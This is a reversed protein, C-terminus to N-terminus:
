AGEGSLLRHVLLPRVQDLVGALWAPDALDIRDAGEQLEAPLKRKLDALEGPLRALAEPDARLEAIYQVLEGVPGETLNQEDAASSASTHLRVKEIWVRGGGLDRAAARVENTWRQPESALAAHARCAGAATVRVALPLGDSAELLGGLATSFRDLVEYGDPADTVDLRCHEWRLVDLPQFEAAPRQADDVTVLLCGKAGTERIHRGQLNGAFAIPPDGCLMERQHVHGLAWYSYDKARLESLRCPAYREHGDRGEACTHLLGINFNGRTPPPYAAALNDVVAATAFGQGHISVGLHDLVITEPKDSSLRRVNDPLRLSKTMRNAADHNGSIVYVPVAAERLRAMEAAFFLGTKYDHWVDDYLDGAILVFAASQDIALQVLNALARRSAGRIEDIPAGDYRELGRLPSDLHVDAAHIFKFM